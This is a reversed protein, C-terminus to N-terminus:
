HTRIFHEVRTLCKHVSPGFADIPSAHDSAMPALLVKEIARKQEKDKEEKEISAREVATERRAKPVFM